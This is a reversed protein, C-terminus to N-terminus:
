RDELIPEITLEILRLLLEECGPSIGTCEGLHEWYLETLEPDNVAEVATDLRVVGAWSEYEAPDVIEPDVGAFYGLLLAASWRSRTMAPETGRSNLAEEIEALKAQAASLDTRSRALAEETADLEEIGALKAQAASLDARTRALEEETADLEAVVEDYDSVAVTSDLLWWLGGGFAMAAIVLAAILWRWSRRDATPADPSSYESESEFATPTVEHTSTM